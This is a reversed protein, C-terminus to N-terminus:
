FLSVTRYVAIVVAKYFHSHTYFYRSTKCGDQHEAGAEKFSLM